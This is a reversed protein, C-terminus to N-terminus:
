KTNTIQHLFDTNNQTEKLKDIITEICEPYKTKTLFKRIIVVKQLVAKTLLLETKRTGSKLIDIAPFIGRDALFRDLILDMNGTGKVEEYIVEDMKSGTHILCTAIISLSGGGVVNRATGFLKKAKQLASADVGGSMTKGTNYSSSNYARALRTLSDMFIVVDHGLECLRKAHNICLETMFIHRASTEDFDSHFIRSYKGLANRVDTVEEPREDVLLLLVKAAPYQKVIAEAINKFVTTKGSKPPSVILGRQGFGIPSFLDILRITIHHINTTKASKSGFLEIKKNPYEPILEEFVRRLKCSPDNSPINNITTIEDIAIRKEGEYFSRIIYEVEDGSRVYLQKIKKSSVFLDDGSLLYKNAVSRIFGYGENALDIIGLGKIFISNSVAKKIILTLIENKKINTPGTNFIKEYLMILDDSRLLQMQNLDIYNGSKDLVAALLNKDINM